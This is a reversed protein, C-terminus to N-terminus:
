DVADETKQLDIPSVHVPPIEEPGLKKAIPAWPLVHRSDRRTFLRM